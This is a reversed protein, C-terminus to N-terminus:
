GDFLGKISNSIIKAVIKYVVNCLYILRYDDMNMAKDKKPILAIFTNNFSVLFDDSAPIKNAKMSFIMAKIEESTVQTFM